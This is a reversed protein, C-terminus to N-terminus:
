MSADAHRGKPYADLDSLDLRMGKPRGLDSNRRAHFSLKNKNVFSPRVAHSISVVEDECESM